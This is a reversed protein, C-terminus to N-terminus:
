NAVASGTIDLLEATIKAQRTKNYELKLDEIIEKANTTANQMSLLRAAQESLYSELIEQYVAMEIYRQLLDPLLEEVNPEFLQFADNVSKTETEAQPRIPLLHTQTAKQVFVNVFHSSVIEVTDIKGSKFQENIMTVIPYVVDFTPLTNGFIFSGVINKNYHAVPSEVKKGITIFSDQSKARKMVDRVLNTVLGGCLGKDPGIIVFLTKGTTDREKMYEPLAFKEVRKTLDGTVSLLKEVYPRSALAADQAKRLKSAAIMQMAKTTKSINQATLIRRKLQLIVAM